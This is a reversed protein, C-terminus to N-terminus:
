HFDFFQHWATRHDSWNYDVSAPPAIGLSDLEKMVRTRNFVMAYAYAAEGNTAGKEIMRRVLAPDAVLSAVCLGRNYDTAGSRLMSAATQFQGNYFAAIFASDINTAGKKVLLRATGFRGRQAAFYLANNLNDAGKEILRKVLSPPSDAKAAALLCANLDVSYRDLILEALKPRDHRLSARFCRSPNNAGNDLLLLTMTTPANECAVLAAKNLTATTSRGILEKALGCHGNSCAEMLFAGLEDAGREILMLVMETHGHAAAASAASNLNNAGRKIMMEAAILQNGVAAGYLGENYFAILVEEQNIGEGEREEYGPGINAIAGALELFGNRCAAELAEGVVPLDYELLALAISQRNNECAHVLAMSISQPSADRFFRNAINPHGGACAGIFGFDTSDVHPVLLDVIRRHGRECARYLAREIPKRHSEITIPFFREQCHMVAIHVPWNWIRGIALRVLSPHDNAAALGLICSPNHWKPIAALRPLDGRVAMAEEM